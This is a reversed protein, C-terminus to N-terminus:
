AFADFEADHRRCGSYPGGGRIRVAYRRTTVRMARVPLSSNELPVPVVREALHDGPNKGGHAGRGGFRAGLEAGRQGFEHV